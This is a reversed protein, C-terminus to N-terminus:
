SCLAWLGSAPRSRRVGRLEDLAKVAVAIAFDRAGLEIAGGKVEILEISVAVAIQGHCLYPLTWRRRSQWPPLTNSMAATKKRPFM